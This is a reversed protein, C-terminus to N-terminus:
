FRGETSYKKCLEECFTLFLFNSEGKTKISAIEKALNKAEKKTLKKIKTYPKKETFTENVLWGRGRTVAEGERLTLKLKETVQEKKATPLDILYDGLDFFFDEGRNALALARLYEIKYEDPKSMLNQVKLTKNKLLLELQKNM